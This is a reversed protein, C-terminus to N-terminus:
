CGPLDGGTLFCGIDVQYSQITVDDNTRTSYRLTAFGGPETPTQNDENFEKNAGTYIQAENNSPDPEEITYMYIAVGYEHLPAAEDSTNQMTIDLVVETDSISVEEVARLDITSVENRLLRQMGSEGVKAPEEPYQPTKTGNDAEPDDSDSEDSSDNSSCGAVSAVVMTAIGQKLLQRRHM